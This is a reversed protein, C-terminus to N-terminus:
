KETDPTDLHTNLLEDSQLKHLLQSAFTTNEIKSLLWSDFAILSVFSSSYLTSNATIDTYIRKCITIFEKRNRIETLKRLFKVVSKEIRGLRQRTGIYRYLTRTSYEIWRVNGMDFHILTEALRAASVIDQRINLPYTLSRQLFHLARKKDDEVFAIIAANFFFPRLLEPGLLEEYPRLSSEWRASQHIGETFKGANMATLCELNALAFYGESRASEYQPGHLSHIFSRLEDMIPAITDFQRVFICRQIYQQVSMIYYKPKEKALHLNNRWIDYSRKAYVIGLGPTIDFYSHYVMYINNLKLAAYLSLEHDNSQLLPHSILDTIEQPFDDTKIGTRSMYFNLKESIANLEKLTLLKKTVTDRLTVVDDPVYVINNDIQHFITEIWTIIKLSLEFEEYELSLKLAKKATKGAQSRLNRRWLFSIDALMELLTREVTTESYFARMSELIVKNLYHKVASLRHAFGYEKVKDQLDQENYEVLSDLAEFLIMYDNKEGLVHKASYKKFYGKEAITLSHILQFLSDSHTM